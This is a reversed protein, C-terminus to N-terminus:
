ILKGLCKGGVVDANGGSESGVCHWCGLLQDPDYKHKLQALKQYNKGWFSSQWNKIWPHAENAYAGSKPWLKQARDSAELLLKAVKKKDDLSSNYNWGTGVTLLAASDRWAETTSTTNGNGSYLYPTTVLFGPALGVSSLWNLHDNIDKLGEKTAYASSPIMWNHSFSSIGAARATPIFYKLYVSYFDPFSEIDVTGGNAQALTALQAMSAQAQPLSLLPTAVVSIGVGQYGGWGEGAWKITSNVLLNQWDAQVQAPATAPLSIYAVSLELKPEVRSTTSLVVGFTAGGGGRLAWFLDQNQCSNAIRRVGDPTVVEFQLVRDVGLGYPRSLIGHGGTMVWGGSAGVTSASGGLYTVGKQNAFSYVQDFNVGAGVTIAPIGRQNKCGGPVFNPTYSMDQLERTWISLSGPGTSRGNYDHGSNKISLTTRTRSAFTFADKVDDATKVQISYSPLSGQNCSVNTYAAPNKPDSPDLLCQQGPATVCEESQTEQFAEFQDVRYKPSLYNDQVVSCQQPDAPVIRGNYKTFCPLSFPTVTRLRGDLTTNLRDWDKNSPAGHVSAALALAAPFLSNFLM